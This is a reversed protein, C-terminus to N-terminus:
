REATVPFRCRVDRRPRTRACWASRTRRQRPARAWDLGVRPARFARRSHMARRKTFVLTPALLPSTNAADERVESPKRNM